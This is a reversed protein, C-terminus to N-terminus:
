AESAEYMKTVSYLRFDGRGTVRYKFHECRRPLVNLTEIRPTVHTGFIQAVSHWRGDSDYQIWVNLAAGFELRVRMDLRCLFRRDPTEFGIEGSELMYRPIETASDGERSSHSLIEGGAAILLRNDHECMFSIKETPALERQWLGLRTDYTFIYKEGEIDECSMVYKHGDAGAIANKYQRTGLKLSIPSITTGDFAVVDRAGKYYVIGDVTAISGHSGKQVGGGSINYIRHAGSASVYVKHIINEKFFVPNDGLVTAGTFEGESGLSAVYADDALGNLTSWDSYSGLASCCIENLAGDYRCGWLRNQCEVIYDLSFKNFDLKVSMLSESAFIETVDEREISVAYGGQTLIASKTNMMGVVAIWGDGFISTEKTYSYELGLAAPMNLLMVSSVDATKADVSIKLYIRGAEVLAYGAVDSTRQYVGPTVNGAGDMRCFLFYEGEPIDSFGEASGLESEDSGYLTYEVPWLTGFLVNLQIRCETVTKEIEFNKGEGKTKNYCYCIPFAIIQAGMRVLQYKAEPDYEGLDKAIDEGCQFLVRGEKEYLVALEDGGLLALIKGDINKIKIRKSRTKLIPYEDNSVNYGDYIENESIRTNHNYGLFEATYTRSKETDNLYPLM